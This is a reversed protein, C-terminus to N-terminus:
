NPNGERALGATAKLRSLGHPTKAWAWPRAILSFLARWAAISVLLWFIPVLVAMPVLFLWGRRLPALLSLFVLLANGGILSALSAFLLATGSLGGLVGAGTALWLAFLAWLLPTVLGALVTGGLILQVTLFGLPGVDRWLALPDRMHVLYTQLYGKMWRTRQSLWAALTVPAEEFTTSALTAVRQGLRALRLGLDADETVNYPDWGGAAELAARRFHNSSGGLPMPAGFRELGPLLADFWLCFDLAFLATLVNERANYVNLRAQLCAVDAPMRAFAAAAQKLQDPEPQDEADFVVVHEGRAFSLGYALAKPKTRPGVSPIAVIHSGPPLPDEALAARTTMDDQEVLFLIERRDAPYDLRVLARVLAPVIAAERYLPVLLSYSPWPTDRHTEIPARAAGAGALFLWAKLVFSALFFFVLTGVIVTAAIPPALAFAGLAASAAAYLLLGQPGTLVRRASFQPASEALARTVLLARTEDESGQWDELLRSARATM